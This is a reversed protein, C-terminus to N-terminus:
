YFGSNMINTLKYRFSVKIIRSSFIWFADEFYPPYIFNLIQHFVLNEKPYNNFMNSEINEDEGFFLVFDKLDIIFDNKKAADVYRFYFEIIYLFSFFSRRAPNILIYKATYLGTIQLGGKYFPTMGRKTLQRITWRLPEFLKWDTVSDGSNFNPDVSSLDYLYSPSYNDDLILPVFPNGHACENRILSLEPFMEKIQEMFIIKEDDYVTSHCFFKDLIVNLLKGLEDVTTNELYLALPADKIEVNKIDGNNSRDISLLEFEKRFKLKKM